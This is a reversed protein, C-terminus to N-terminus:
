AVVMDAFKTLGDRLRQKYVQWCVRNQVRRIEIAQEPTYKRPRGQKFVPIPEGKQIAERIREKRLKKAIAQQELKIRHAEEPNMAHTPGSRRPELAGHQVLVRIISSM